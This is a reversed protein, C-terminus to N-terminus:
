GILSMENRSADTIPRASQSQVLSAWESRLLIEHLLNPGRRSGHHVNHQVHRRTNEMRERFGPLNAENGFM